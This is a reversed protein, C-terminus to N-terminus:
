KNITFENIKRAIFDCRENISIKPVAIINYGLDKYIKQLKIGFNNATKFDVKREEDNTYIEEWSEFIFVNVNYRYYLSHSSAKTISVNLLEAYAIIDPVGRDFIIIEEENLNKDYDNIMKELMLENFLEADKEPVGIGSIQRQEKLVIRAPEDICFYNKKLQNLVATKGAGMAGTIVFFNEKTM